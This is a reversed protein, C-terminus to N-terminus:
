EAIVRLFVVYYIKRVKTMYNLLTVMIESIYDVAYHELACLLPGSLSWMGESITDGFYTFYSMMQIAADIYEFCSDGSNLIRGIILFFYICNIEKFM